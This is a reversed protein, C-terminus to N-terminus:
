RAPGTGRAPCSSACSRSTAWSGYAGASDGAARGGPEDAAIASGGYVIIYWVANTTAVISERLAPGAQLVRNAIRGAFDNQFFTWSQRVVHWHSQWRVLNMLGPNIAQNTVVNLLLCAAPGSSWCCRRWAWCSGARRHGCPRGAPYHSVLEVVRGLFVPITSDVLATLM